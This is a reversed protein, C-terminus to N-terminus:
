EAFKLIDENIDYLCHILAIDKETLYEEWFTELFAAKVLLASAATKLGKRGEEIQTKNEEYRGVFYLRRVALYDEYLSRTQKLMQIIKVKTHFVRYIDRIFFFPTCIIHTIRQMTRIAIAKM